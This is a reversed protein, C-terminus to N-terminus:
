GPGRRAEIEGVVDAALVRMDRVIKRTNESLATLQNLRAAMKTLQSVLGVLEDMIQADGQPVFVEASVKGSSSTYHTPFRFQSRAEPVSPQQIPRSISTVCRPCGYSGFPVSQRCSSCWLSVHCGNQCAIEGTPVMLNCRSCYLSM